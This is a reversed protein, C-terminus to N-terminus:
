NIFGSTWSVIVINQKSKQATITKMGYVIGIMVFVMPTANKIKALTFLLTNIEMVTPKLVVLNALEVITDPLVM